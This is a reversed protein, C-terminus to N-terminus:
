TRGALTGLARRAGCLRAGATRRAGRLFRCGRLGRGFRGRLLRRGLLGRGGLARGRPLRRRLLRRGTGCRGGGPPDVPERAPGPETDGVRHPRHEPPYPAAGLAEVRGVALVPERQEQEAERQDDGRAGPGVEAARDTVQDLHQHGPGEAPEVQQDRQQEARDRHPEDEVRLLGLGVAPDADAEGREDDADQALDVDGAAGRAAAVAALGHLVGATQDAPGRGLGEDEHHALDEGDGHQHQEREEPQEDDGGGRDVRDRLPQADEAGAEADDLRGVVGRLGLPVPPAGLAALLVVLLPAVGPRLGPGRPAAAGRLRVVHVPGLGLHQLPAASQGAAAGTRHHRGEGHHRDTRNRQTM